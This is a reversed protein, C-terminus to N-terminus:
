ACHHTNAHARTSRALVTDGWGLYRREIEPGLEFSLGDGDGGLRSRERSCETGSARQSLPRLEAKRSRFM